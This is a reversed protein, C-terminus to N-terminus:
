CKMIELLNRRMNDIVEQSFKKGKAGRLIAIKNFIELNDVFFQSLLEHIKQRNRKDMANVVLPSTIKITKIFEVKYQELKEFQEDDVM